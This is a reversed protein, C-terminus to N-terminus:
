LDAPSLEILVVGHDVMAGVTAHVKRVTAGSEAYLTTEMKMAELVILPQGSEVTQGESVLLKLVKGPMPATVEPTALGRGGRAGRGEVRIFEFAAPGVAVLISDRRRAAQVRARRGDLRLVAEGGAIREIEATVEEGDIRLRISAGDRALIEVDFERNGGAAKVKM